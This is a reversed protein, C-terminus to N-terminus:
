FEGRQFKKHPATERNKYGHWLIAALLIAASAWVTVAITTQDVGQRIAIGTLGWVGVFASERLNRTFLIFLFIGLTVLILILAWTGPFDRFIGIELGALLSAMGAISEIIMWGAFVALPWWVFLLIRLPADWIEMKLRIILIVLFLLVLFISLVSLGAYGNKWLIMWGTLALNNLFFYVDVSELINLNWNKRLIKWQFVVFAILLLFLVWWISYFFGAPTVLTIRSLGEAARVSIDGFGTITFVVIAVALSVTNLIVFIRREM